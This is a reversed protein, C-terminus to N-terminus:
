VHERRREMKEIEDISVYFDTSKEYLRYIICILIGLGTLAALFFLHWVMAFGFVFSLVGINFGQATNSPMHIKEYLGKPPKEGKKKM